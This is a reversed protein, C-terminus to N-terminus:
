PCVSLDLIVKVLGYSNKDEINECVDSFDKITGPVPCVTLIVLLPVPSTEGIGPWASVTLATPLSYIGEWCLITIFCSGCKMFNYTIIWSSEFSSSNYYRDKISVCSTHKLWKIAHHYYSYVKFIWINSRSGSYDKQYDQLYEFIQLNQKVDQSLCM